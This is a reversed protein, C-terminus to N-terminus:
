LRIGINDNTIFAKYDECSRMLAEPDNKGVEDANYLAFLKGRKAQIFDISGPIYSLYTLLSTGSFAVEPAGCSVAVDIRLHRMKDGGEGWGFGESWVTDMWRKLLYPPMYWWLPFQLIVRDARLLLRQESELDFFGDEQMANNLDHVLVEEDPLSIAAKMWAKNVRSTQLDPHGIVVLTKM